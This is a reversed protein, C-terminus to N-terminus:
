LTRRRINNSLGIYCKGNPFNIKYIGSVHNPCNEIKYIYNMNIESEWPTEMYMHKLQNFNLKEYIYKPNVTLM